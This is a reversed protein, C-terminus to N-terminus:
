FADNTENAGGGTGQGFGTGTTLGAAKGLFVAIAGAKPADGLKEGPIGVALDAYGDKNFDGAALAAGFQDGAENGMGSVNSQTLRIGSSIGNASGPFVSVSGAAVGGVV